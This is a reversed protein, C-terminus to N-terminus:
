SDRVADAMALYVEALAICRPRLNILGRAMELAESFWREAEPRHGAKYLGVAARAIIEPRDILELELAKERAADACTRARNAHGLRGWAESLAAWQMAKVPSPAGQSEFDLQTEELRVKLTDSDVKGSARLILALREDVRRYGTISSCAQWAEDFLLMSEVAGGTGARLAAVRAKALVLDDPLIARIQVLAERGSSEDGSVFLALARAANAETRLFLGGELRLAYEDLTTRDGAAALAWLARALVQDHENEKLLPAKYLAEFALIKAKESHGLLAAELAIDALTAWKRWGEIARAAQEAEELPIGCRLAHVAVRQQLKARASADNTIAAAAEWASSWAETASPMDAQVARCYLVAASLFFSCFRPNM